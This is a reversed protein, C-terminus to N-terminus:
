HRQKTKVQLMFAVVDVYLMDRNLGESAKSALESSTFFSQGMLIILFICKNLDM